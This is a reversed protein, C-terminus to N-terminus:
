FLHTLRTTARPCSLTPAIAGIFIGPRSYIKAGRFNWGSVSSRSLRHWFADFHVSKCTFNWFIKPATLGALDGFQPPHVRAPGVSSRTCCSCELIVTSYLRRPAMMDGFDSITCSIPVLNSNRVLLFDCVRKRHAGFDIVESSGSRGFRWEQRFLCFERLKFENLILDACLITATLTFM